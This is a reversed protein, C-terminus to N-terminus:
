AGGLFSLIIELLAEPADAHVWHNAQRVTQLAANPFYTQITPVDSDLIYNSQEGRVFLTKGEFSSTAPINALIDEYHKNIELLNMKWQYNGEKTRTLNKLLFQRTGFDAIGYQLLFAEAAKRDEVAELPFALLADLILEHGGSYLKPAIDVVVLKEVVDGYELAMQMAVKGGMSHGILHTKHIWNQGLFHHLDDALLQYNMGAVHPSRGHNRQDILVVMYHEALQKGITQWNDLTGFLGHLIVVPTGQGFIKYNLSLPNSM